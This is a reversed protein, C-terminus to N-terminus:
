DDDEEETLLDFEEEQTVLSSIHRCMQDDGSQFTVLRCLIDQRCARNCPRSSFEGYRSYRQYFLNWETQNTALSETYRAWSLPSLDSLGLSSLSSLASYELSFTLETKNSHSERLDLSYTEHDLM